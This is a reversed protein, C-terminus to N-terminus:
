YRDKGDERTHSNNPAGNRNIRLDEFLFHERVDENSNVPEEGRLVRSEAGAETEM